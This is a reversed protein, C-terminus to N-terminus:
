LPRCLLEVGSEWNGMLVDHRYELGELISLLKAMSSENRNLHAVNAELIMVPRDRCITETGGCLAYPEHGEIDMKIFKVDKIGFSDLTRCKVSTVDGDPRFRTAMSGGANGNHHQFFLEGERDSLAFPHIHCDPCNHRLCELMLPNCEFAHVLRPSGTKRAYCDTHDGIAAGVDLAVTGPEIHPLYHIEVGRDHCLKGSEEVWGSLLSDKDKDLVAINNGVIRM